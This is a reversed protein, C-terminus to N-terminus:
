LKFASHLETEFCAWDAKEHRLFTTRVLLHLHTHHSPAIGLFFLSPHPSFISPSFASPPARRHPPPRQSRLRPM